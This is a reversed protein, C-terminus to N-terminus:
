LISIHWNRMPLTCSTRHSSSIKPICKGKLHHWNRMPLTCSFFKYINIPMFEYRTLEEYTLYLGHFSCPTGVRHLLHWNRMPLTCCKSYICVCCLIILCCLTDIGWLYPVVFSLHLTRHVQLLTHWNRMPLTCGKYWCFINNWLNFRTLEEYTLYM